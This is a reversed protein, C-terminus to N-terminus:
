NTTNPLYGIEKKIRIKEERTLTDYFRPMESLQEYLTNPITKLDYQYNPSDEYSIIPNEVEQNKTGEIYQQRSEITNIKFTMSDRYVDSNSKDKLIITMNITNDSAKVTIDVGTNSDLLDGYIDENNFILKNNEVKFVNDYKPTESSNEELIQVNRAFQLKKSVLEFMKDVYLKDENMKTTAKFNNFVSFMMTTAILCVISVIILSVMIEILTFGKKNTKM